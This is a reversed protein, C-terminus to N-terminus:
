VHVNILAVHVYTSCDHVTFRPTVLPQPSVRLGEDHRAVHTM